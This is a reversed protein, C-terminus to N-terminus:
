KQDLITGFLHAIQVGIPLGLLISKLSTAYYHARVHEMNQTQELWRCFGNVEQQAQEELRRRTEPDTKEYNEKRIRITQDMETHSYEEYLAFSRPTRQLTELEQIEAIFEETEARMLLPKQKQSIETIFATNM